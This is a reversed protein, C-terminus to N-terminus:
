AETAKPSLHQAVNGIVTTLLVMSKASLTLNPLTQVLNTFAPLSESKVQPIANAINEAVKPHVQALKVMSSSLDLAMKATQPNNSSAMQTIAALSAQLKPTATLLQSLIQVNAATNLSAKAM